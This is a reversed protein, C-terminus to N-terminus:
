SVQMVIRLKRVTVKVAKKGGFHLIKRITKLSEAAMLDTKDPKEWRVLMRARRLPSALDRM